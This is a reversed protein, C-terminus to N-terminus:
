QRISLQYPRKRLQHIGFLVVIFPVAAIEWAIQDAFLRHPLVDIQGSCRGVAIGQQVVITLDWVGSHPLTFNAAQLFRSTAGSHSAHLVLRAGNGDIPTLILTVDANEVLGASDRQEVAVSFDAQGQALPDPSTFLTVMFSGAPEHLRLRGGDAYAPHFASFVMALLLIHRM